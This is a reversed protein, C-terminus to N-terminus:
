KSFGLALPFLGGRKRGPLFIGLPKQLGPVRVCLGFAPSGHGRGADRTNDQIKDGHVGVYVM